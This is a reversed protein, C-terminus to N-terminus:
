QPSREPGSSTGLRAVRAELRGLADDLASVERAFSELKVRSAILPREETWYEAAGQALRLRADRSWDRLARAASAARHAPVDGVVRALDEEADWTLHRALFRVDEALAADGQMDLAAFAAEERAALRPLLFPSMRVELDRSGRAAGGHGRGDDPHHFCTDGPGCPIRRHPGRAASAARARPAGLAARPEAGGDRPAPAARECGTGRHLAVVGAALNFYEVRELGASQMMEKLTEQDPHMRISEALYRYAGEDQAVLRGLRPLVGFSYADYARPAAELRALVRAGLVRGGPKTVRAM